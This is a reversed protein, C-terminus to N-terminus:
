FEPEIGGSDEGIQNNHVQTEDFEEDKYDNDKGASQVNNHPQLELVSVTSTIPMQLDNINNSGNYLPEADLDENQNKNENQCQVLKQKEDQDQDQDQDQVVTTMLSKKSSNWSSNLNYNNSKFNGQALGTKYTSSGLRTNTQANVGSKNPIKAHVRNIAISQSTKRKAKARQQVKKDYTKRENQKSILKKHREYSSQRSSPKSINIYMHSSMNRMRMFIESIKVSASRSVRGSQCNNERDDDDTASTTTNLRSRETDNEQEKEENNVESINDSYNSDDDGSYSDNQNIHSESRHIFSENCVHQFNTMNGTTRKTTLEHITLERKNNYVLIPSSVSDINQLDSKEKHDTNNDAMRVDMPRRYRRHTSQTNKSDKQGNDGGCEDGDGFEIHMRTGQSFQEPTRNVCGNSEM